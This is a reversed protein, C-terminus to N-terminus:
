GAQAVSVKEALAADLQDMRERNRAAEDSSVIGSLEGGIPHLVLRAM